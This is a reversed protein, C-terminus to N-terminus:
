VWSVLVVWCVKWEKMVRTPDDRLSSGLLRLGVLLGALPCLLRPSTDFVSGTLVFLLLLMFRVELKMEPKGDGEESRGRSLRPREGEAFGPRLGVFYEGETSNSDCDCNPALAPSLKTVGQVGSSDGGLSQEWDIPDAPDANARCLLQRRSLVQPLSPLVKLLQLEGSCDNIFGASLASNESCRLM